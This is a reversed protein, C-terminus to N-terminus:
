APVLREAPILLSRAGSAAEYRVLDTGGTLTASEEVTLYSAADVWRAPGFNKATYEKRLFIAELRQALREGVPAAPAAPVTAARCALVAACLLVLARRHSM